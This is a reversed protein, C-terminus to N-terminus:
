FKKNKLIGSAIFADQPTTIKINFHSGRVIGVKKGIKEVLSSDDTVDHNGFKKYARLILGTKFVQPTQIEWLNSRKITKNVLAAVAPNSGEIRKAQKVTFSVPVGSIASGYKKAAKIVSSIINKDIFPRAADHILVYDASPDLAKLGKRVSDQRRLGGLVVDKVKTIRYEKIKRIVNKKNLPNVAVIIDKIYPHRNLALLSYILIPKSGIRFLPKSVGPNFRSGKGAALVIATVHMS